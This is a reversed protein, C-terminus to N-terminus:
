IGLDEPTLEVVWGRLGVSDNFATTPEMPFLLWYIVGFKMCTSRGQLEHGIIGSFVM